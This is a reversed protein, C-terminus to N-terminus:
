GVRAYVGGGKTGGIDPPTATVLGLLLAMVWGLM